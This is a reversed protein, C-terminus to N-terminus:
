SGGALAYAAIGMATAVNLSAKQGRMPIYVTRECLALIGPDVGTVENGLVLTIPSDGRSTAASFINEAGPTCELAWLTRGERVLRKALAVGNRHAQWPLWDEAGLATKRMAKHAPTPTIGALFLESVGVGDATRFISGVNFVSRVNDLFLDLPKPAPMPEPSAFAARESGLETTTKCLPCAVGVEGPFRLGCAPAPCQAFRYAEPM